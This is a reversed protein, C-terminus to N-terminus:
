VFKPWKNGREPRVSRSTEKITERPKKQTNSILLRNRRCEQTKDLVPTVHLEKAIETNTKYDTWTYGATKRVYKM